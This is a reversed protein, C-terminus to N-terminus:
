VARFPDAQVWHQGAAWPYGEPRDQGCLLTVHNRYSQRGVSALTDRLRLVTNDWDGSQARGVLPIAFVIRPERPPLHDRHLAARYAWGLAHQAWPLPYARSGQGPEDM